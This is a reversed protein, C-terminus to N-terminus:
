SLVKLPTLSGDSNKQWLVFNSAGFSVRYNGQTTNFDFYVTNENNYKGYLFSSMRSDFSIRDTVDRSTADKINYTTGNAATIKDIDAM